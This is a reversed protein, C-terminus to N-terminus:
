SQITFIIALLSLLSVLLFSVFIRKTFVKKKELRVRNLLINVNTTKTQSNIPDPNQRNDISSLDNKYNEKKM